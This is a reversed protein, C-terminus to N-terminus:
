KQDPRTIFISFQVNIELKNLYSNNLTSCADITANLYYINLTSCADRTQELLVYQSNFMCKHEQKALNYINITSCVNRTKGLLLYQPNFMCKQNQWTLFISPQVYMDPRFLFLDCYKGTLKPLTMLLLCIVQINWTELGTHVLM